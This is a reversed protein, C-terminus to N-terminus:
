LRCFHAFSAGEGKKRSEEGPRKFMGANYERLVNALAELETPTHIQGTPNGPSNLLLVPRRGDEQARQCAAELVDPQVQWREAQGGSCALREQELGALQAQPAYSVWAPAPLLLRHTEKGLRGFATFLAWLLLKSGPAVLVREANWPTGDMRTHFAAAAHCLAPMGQVATYEKAAAHRVLAAVAVPLVPFPSQGFGLRVM